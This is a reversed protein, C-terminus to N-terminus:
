RVNQSLTIIRIGERTGFFGLANREAKKNTPRHSETPTMACVLAIAGGGGISATAKTYLFGMFWRPFGVAADDLPFLFGFGEKRGGLGWRSPIEVPFRLVLGGAAM